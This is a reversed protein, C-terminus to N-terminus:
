PFTLKFEFIRSIIPFIPEDLDRIWPLVIARRDPGSRLEELKPAMKRKVTTIFYKFQLM